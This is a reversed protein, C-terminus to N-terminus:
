PSRRAWSVLFALAAVGALGAVVFVIPFGEGGLGGRQSVAVLVGLLLVLVGAVAAVVARQAVKDAGTAQRALGVAQDLDARTLGPNEQEFERIVHTLRAALEVARPSPPTPVHPVIPVYSM